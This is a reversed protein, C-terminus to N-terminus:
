TIPQSQFSQKPPSIMYVPNQKPNPFIAGEDTWTFLQDALAQTSTQVAHCM